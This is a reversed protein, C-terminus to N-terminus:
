KKSQGDDAGRHYLQDFVQMYDLFFGWKTRHLYSCLLNIQYLNKRKNAWKTQTGVLTIQNPLFKQVSTYMKSDSSMLLQGSAKQFGKIGFPM